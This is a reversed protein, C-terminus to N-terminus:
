SEAVPAEGGTDGAAKDESKRHKRHKRHKRRKVKVKVKGKVKEKLKKVKGKGKRRKRQSQQVKRVYVWGIVGLILVGIICGIVIGIVRGTNNPQPAQTEVTYPNGVRTSDPLSTPVSTHTNNNLKIYSTASVTPPADVVNTSLHEHIHPLATPSPSKSLLTLSSSSSSTSFTPSSQSVNHGARTTSDVVKHSFLHSSSVPFVVPAM